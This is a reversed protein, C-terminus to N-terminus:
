PRAGGNRGRRDLVQEAALTDHAHRARRLDHRVRGIRDKQFVGLCESRVEQDVVTEEGAFADGIEVLVGYPPLFVEPRPPLLRRKSPRYPLMFDARNRRPGLVPVQRWPVLGISRMRQVARTEAYSDTPPEGPPRRALVRRLLVDGPAAGGGVRLKEITVGGDRLAHEVALEVREDEFLRGVTGMGDLHRLVVSLAAVRLEDIVVPEAWARTRIVGPAARTSAPACWRPCWERDRFGDLGLRAAAAPGTLAVYNKM